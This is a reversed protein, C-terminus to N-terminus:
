IANPEFSDAWAMQWMNSYFGGDVKIIAQWGAWLSFALYGIASLVFSAIVARYRWGSLLLTENM